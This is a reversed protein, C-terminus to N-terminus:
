KIELEYEQKGLKGKVHINFALSHRDTDTKNKTVGHITSSPFMYLDGNKPIMSWIKSNFLNWDIVDVDAALPFVGVKGLDRILTFRGCDEKGTVDFYYVGSLICNTHVHDQAWDKPKHRVVWSNSIYFKINDVVRLETYVYKEIASNIKEKLSACEPKNLIYKDTGYDGNDTAMREFSQGKLFISTEEDIFINQKVFLPMCFLPLIRYDVEAM